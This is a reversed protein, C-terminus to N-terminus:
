LCFYVHKYDSCNYQLANFYVYVSLSFALGTYSLNIKAEIKYLYLFISLVISVLLFGIVVGFSISFIM